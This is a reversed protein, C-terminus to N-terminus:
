SLSRKKGIEKNKMNQQNEMEGKHTEGRNWLHELDKLRFYLVLYACRLYIKEFNDKKWQAKFKIYSRGPQWQKKNKYDLSKAKKHTGHWQCNPFNLCIAKYSM